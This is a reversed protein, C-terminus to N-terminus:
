AHARVDAPLLRRPHRGRADVHAQGAADGDTAAFVAAAESCTPRASSRAGASAAAPSSPTSGCRPRTSASRGRRDGGPRDGPVARRHLCDLSGDDRKIFVADLPEMPAHALFPFVIEAELSRCAARRCAGQRRRRAQDGRPRTERSCSRSLRRRARESSRTEAKRCTGSSRRAGRPGEARRLHERCLRRRGAAGAQRRRRGAGQAGRRRRVVQVTAGFHPPIRSWRSWCTTPRRRRAHLGGHRQDQRAHRAEAPGQRDARLGEPGQADADDPPTQQRRRTPSSASAAKRARPPMARHPGERRHDRRGARGLGRRRGRGAHRAGHRRGQADARLFQRDVTSGGTGQLGFALNAYLKDDAPSHVARM